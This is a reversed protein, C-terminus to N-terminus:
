EMIMKNVSDKNNYGLNQKQTQQETKRVYGLEECSKHGM